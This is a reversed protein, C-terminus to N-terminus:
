LKKQSFFSSKAYFFFSKKFCDYEEQNNNCGQFNKEGELIDLDKHSYLCFLDFLCVNDCQFQDLRSQNINVFISGLDDLTMLSFKYDDLFM